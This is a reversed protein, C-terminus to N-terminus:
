HDGSSASLAEVDQKSRMDAGDGSPVTLLDM